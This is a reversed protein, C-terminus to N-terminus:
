AINVVFEGSRAVCVDDVVIFCEVWHRGTYLTSEKRVRKGKYIQSTQYFGGRLQGAEDAEYGTNVVQWYVTYPKKVNTNAIFRLSTNKHLPAGDSYYNRPRFGNRNTKASIEVRLESDLAMDWRPTQRHRVLFFREREAIEKITPSTALSTSSSERGDISRKVATEGFQRYLSKTASQLNSANVAELVDMEVRALWDLFIEQRQPYEQWKDAFNESPNVPNAVWLVGDREEIHDSMSTAVGVMAELTNEENDYAQAALTTILISVPKDDPDGDFTMDRHRKLLQVARQLPTKVKYEPVDDVHAKLAEALEKRAIQWQVEMREKFWEAYDAPNCCVWNFSIRDYDPQQNDTIAIESNEEQRHEPISPLVDLHFLAEDAYNLRWCRRREEPEENMQHATVYGALESGVLDKLRKQTIGMKSFDVRCVLDIDYEDDNSIPKIVTGLRFSGQPYIVPAHDSVISEDRELWNGIAEYRSRAREFYSEPIDLFEALNNLITNLDIYTAM